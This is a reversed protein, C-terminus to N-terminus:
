AVEGALYRALSRVGFRAGGWTRRAARAAVMGQAVGGLFPRLLGQRVRRVALGGHGLALVPIALLLLPWTFTRVAVLVRNRALLYTRYRRLEPMGEVSHGWAHVLALDLTRTRVGSAHLRYALDADEGWAFLQEAFGGFRHFLGTPFVAAGGSPGLPGRRADTRRDDFLSIPHAEIGTYEQGRMRLGIALPADPAEAVAAAIRSLSDPALWVDPNLLLVHPATAAAVARNAGTAFGPNTPDPLYRHPRGALHEAVLAACGEDPLHDAFVFEVPVERASDLWTPLTKALVDRSRYLVTAVCLQAATM